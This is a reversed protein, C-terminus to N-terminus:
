LRVQDELFATDEELAGIKAMDEQSVGSVSSPKRQLIILFINM